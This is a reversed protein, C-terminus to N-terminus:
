ECIGKNFENLKKFKIVQFVKGVIFYFITAIFLLYVINKITFGNM